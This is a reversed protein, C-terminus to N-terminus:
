IEVGEAGFVGGWVVEEDDLEVHGFRFFDGGGELFDFFFKAPDIIHEIVGPIRNDAFDLPDPPRISSRHKFNVEPTRHIDRFFGKLEESLHILRLSPIQQVNRRGNPEDPLRGSSPVIRRFMTLVM